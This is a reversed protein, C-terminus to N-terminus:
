FLDLAELATLEARLEDAGVVVHATFGQTQFPPAVHKAYRFVRFLSPRAPDIGVVNEPADGGIACRSESLDDEKVLTANGIVRGGLRDAAERADQPVEGHLFLVRMFRPLVMANLGNLTEIPM